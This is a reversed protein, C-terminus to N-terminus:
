QRVPGAQLRPKHWCHDGLIMAAGIMTWGFAGSGGPSFITVEAMNSTLYALLMAVAPINRSAYLEGFFVLLFVVFGTAGVIGGEELVATPLFGKEAPASFWTANKIFSEATGVQFGLGTLPREQFNKWSLDILAQRSALVQEADIEEKAEKTGAKNIFSIIPKSIGGQSALDLFGLFATSFVVFVVIQSRQVNLRLRWGFRNRFPRALLFLVLLGVITAAISARAKSWIMFVLWIPLMALAIKRRPYEGLLFVSVLLVVFLSAYVSHCNPHLFAGVFADSEVNASYVRFNNDVGLAISLLGLLTTAAVLSVFWETMDVRLRRLVTVGALIASVVAWFNTLKMLAIQTYWGSLVSCAAMILVYVVLTGYMPTAFLSTGIRTMDFSFRVFALLPLALRAPTWLLSKPVFSPNIMLGVWAIALAKFATEPSKLVMVALISFFVGAGVNGGKNLLMLAIIIVADRAVRQLDIAPRRLGVGTTRVDTYTPPEGFSTKLSSATAM